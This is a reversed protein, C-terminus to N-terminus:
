GVKLYVDMEKIKDIWSMGSQVNYFCSSRITNRRRSHNRFLCDSRNGKHKWFYSDFSSYNRLLYDCELDNKRLYKKSVGNLLKNLTRIWVGLIKIYSIVLILFILRTSIACNDSVSIRLAGLLFGNVVFLILSLM